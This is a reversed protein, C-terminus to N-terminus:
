LTITITCGPPLKRKMEVLAEEFTLERLYTEPIELRRPLFDAMPASEPASRSLVCVDMISSGRGAGSVVANGKLPFGPSPRPREAPAAETADPVPGPERPKPTRAAPAADQSDVVFDAWTLGMDRLAREIKQGKVSKVSKGNRWQRFGYYVMAYPEGARHALLEMKQKQSDAERIAQAAVAAHDGSQSAAVDPDPTAADAPGADPKADPGPEGAARVIDAPSVNATAPTHACAACVGHEDPTGPGLLMDYCESRYIEKNVRPCSIFTGVASM